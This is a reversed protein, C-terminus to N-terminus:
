NQRRIKKNCLKDLQKQMKHWNNKKSHLKNAIHQQKQQKSVHSHQRSIRQQEQGQTFLNDDNSIPNPFFIPFSFFSCTTYSIECNFLQSQHIRFFLLPQHGQIKVLWLFFPPSININHEKNRFPPIVEQFLKRENQKELSMHSICTFYFRYRLYVITPKTLKSM